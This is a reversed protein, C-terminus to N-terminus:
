RKNRKIFNIFSENQKYHHEYKSKIFNIVLKTFGMLKNYLLLLEGLIFKMKNKEVHKQRKRLIIRMFTVNLIGTNGPIKRKNKKLNTIMEKLRHMLIYQGFIKNEM